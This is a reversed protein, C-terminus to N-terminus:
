IMISQLTQIESLATPLITGGCASSGYGVQEIVARIAGTQVNQILGMQKYQICNSSYTYSSTSNAILVIVAVDTADVMSSVAGVQFSGSYSSSYYSSNGFTQMPWQSVSNINQATMQASVGNINMTFTASSNSSSGYSSGYYSSTGYGSGYMSVNSISAAVSTGNLTDTSTVSNGNVSVNGQVNSSGSKSGGCAILGSSLLGLLSIMVTTRKFNKMYM